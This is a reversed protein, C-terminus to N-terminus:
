ESPIPELRQLDITEADEIIIKASASQTAQPLVESGEVPSLYAVTVAHEVLIRPAMDSVAAVLADSRDLLLPSATAAYEVLIRPLVESGDKVLDSSPSLRQIGLTAAHEVLVRPSVDVTDAVLQRSSVLGGVWHAKADEITISPATLIPKPLLLFFAVGVLLLGAL